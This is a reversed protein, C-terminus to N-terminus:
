AAAALAAAGPAEPDIAAGGCADLAAGAGPGDAAVGAGAAGAACTAATPLGSRAAPSARNLATQAAQWPAPPLEPVGALGRRDCCCGAYMTLCSCSNLLPLRGLGTMCPKAAWSVSCSMTLM